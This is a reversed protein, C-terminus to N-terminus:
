RNAPGPRRLASASGGAEPGQPPAADAVPARVVPVPSLTASSPSPLASVPTGAATAAGPRGTAAAPPPALQLSVLPAGGRPGIEVGRAVVKQLVSSGDVVHGVRYTRPPKGDVAITAWGTQGSAIVGVLQFRSQEATPAPKDPAAALLAPDAGLVRGLDARLVAAVPAAQAHPPAEPPTGFLHLAWFVSTGAVAAWILFASTKALMSSNHHISGESCVAM